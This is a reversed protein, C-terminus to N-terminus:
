VLIKRTGERRRGKTRSLDAPSKDPLIRLHLGIGEPGQSRTNPGWTKWSRPKEEKEHQYLPIPSPPPPLCRVYRWITSNQKEKQTPNTPNPRWSLQSLRRTADPRRLPLHQRICACKAQWLCTKGTIMVREPRSVPELGQEFYVYINPYRTSRHVHIKPM